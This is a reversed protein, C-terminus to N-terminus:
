NSIYIKQSITRSTGRDIRVIYIGQRLASTDVNDEHTDLVKMGAEDFLSLATFVGVARLHGQTFILRVDENETM